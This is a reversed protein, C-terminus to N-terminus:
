WNKYKHTKELISIKKPIHESSKQKKLSKNSLKLTLQNSLEEENDYDSLLITEEIM